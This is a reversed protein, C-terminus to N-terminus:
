ACLEPSGGVGWGRGAAEEDTEGGHGHLGDVHRVRVETWTDCSARRACARSRRRRSRRATSGIRGRRRRPPRPPSRDRPSRSRTRWVPVRGSKVVRSSNHGPASETTTTGLHQREFVDLAREHDRVRATQVAAALSACGQLGRRSACRHGERAGEKITCQEKVRLRARAGRPAREPRHASLVVAADLPEIGEAFGGLESGLNVPVTCHEVLGDVYVPVLWRPLKSGDSVRLACGACPLRCALHIVSPHLKCIRCGNCSICIDAM